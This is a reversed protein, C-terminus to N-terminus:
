NSISNLDDLAIKLVEISQKNGAFAVLLFGDHEIAHPYDVRRGGVLYGMRDFQQGDDSISLTLPDRRNPNANSVFVYRGDRLRLGFMKSTADPFNTKHPPSWTQGEDDSFSRYVYGSRRNDRFLAMLKGDPLVWWFPEEASLESNSGLVPFSRWDDLQNVGGVMFQVGM